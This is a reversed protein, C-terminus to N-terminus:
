GFFFNRQAIEGNLNYFHQLDYERRLNILQKIRLITFGELSIIAKEPANRLLLLAASCPSPSKLM